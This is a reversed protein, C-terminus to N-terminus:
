CCRASTAILRPLVDAFYRQWGRRQKVHRTPLTFCSLAGDAPPLSVKGAMEAVTHIFRQPRQLGYSERM